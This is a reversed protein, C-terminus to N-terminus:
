DRSERLWGNFPEGQPLDVYGYLTLKAADEATKQGWQGMGKLFTDVNKEDSLDVPQEDKGVQRTQTRAAVTMLAFNQQDLKQQIASKVKGDLINRPLHFEQCVPRALGVGDVTKLAHVMAASTKLGGIVYSKTRKLTPTILDACDLFIVFHCPSNGSFPISL